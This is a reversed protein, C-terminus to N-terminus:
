ENKLKKYEHKFSEYGKIIEKNFENQFNNFFINFPKLMNIFEEINNFLTNAEELHKLSLKNNNRNDRLNHAFVKHRLEKIQKWDISNYITKNKTRFTKIRNKIELNDTIGNNFFSTYEDNFSNLDIINMSFYTHIQLIIDKCIISTENVSKGRSLNEKICKNIDFPHKDILFNNKGIIRKGFFDLITLSEELKNM